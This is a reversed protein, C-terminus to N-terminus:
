ILIRYAQVLAYVIPSRPTLSIYAYIDAKLPSSFHPPCGDTSVAPHVATTFGSPILSSTATMKIWWKTPTITPRKLVPTGTVDDIYVAQEEGRASKTVFILLCFFLIIFISLILSRQNHEDQFFEVPDRLFNAINKM